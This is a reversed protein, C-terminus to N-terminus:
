NKHHLANMVRQNSILLNVRGNGLNKLIAKDTDRTWSIATTSVDDPKGLLNLIKKGHATYLAEYDGSTQLQFELNCLQNEIFTANLITLSEGWLKGVEGSQPIAQCEELIYAKRKQGLGAPQQKCQLQTTLLGELAEVAETRQDGLKVDSLGYRDLEADDPAALMDQELRDCGVLAFALFASLCYKMIKVIARM